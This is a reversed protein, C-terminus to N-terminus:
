SFLHVLDTDLVKLEPHDALRSLLDERLRVLSLTGGPALNLRRILEQRRPEAAVHLHATAAASPEAQYAAIAAELKGHDA